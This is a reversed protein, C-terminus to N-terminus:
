RRPEARRSGRCGRHGLGDACARPHEGPGLLLSLRSSTHEGVCHSIGGIVVKGALDVQYIVRKLLSHEGGPNVKQSALCAMVHDDSHVM